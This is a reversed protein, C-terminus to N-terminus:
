KTRLAPNLLALVQVRSIVTGSTQLAFAPLQEALSAVTYGRSSLYSALLRCLERNARIDARVLQAKQFLPDAQIAELRTIRDGLAANSDQMPKVSQELDLKLAELDAILEECDSLSPKRNENMRDWKRSYINELELLQGISETTM